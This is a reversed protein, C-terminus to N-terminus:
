EEEDDEAEEDKIAIRDVTQAVRRRTKGVRRSVTKATREVDQCVSDVASLAAKAGVRAFMGAAGLLMKKLEEDM